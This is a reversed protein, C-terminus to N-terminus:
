SSINEENSEEYQDDVEKENIKEGEENENEQNGKEEEKNQKNKNEEKKEQIKNSGSVIDNIGDIINNIDQHENQKKVLNSYKYKMIELKDKLNKEEKKLLFNQKLKNRYDQNFKNIELDKNKLKHKELFTNEENEKIEKELESCEGKLEEAEMDMVGKELETVKDLFNQFKEEDNEYLNKIKEIEEESFISSIIKGEINTDIKPLSTTLEYKTINGNEIKNSLEKRKNLNIKINEIRESDFNMLYPHKNMDLFNQKNKLENYYKEDEKKQLTFKSQLYIYDKNKNHYEKNQTNLKNKVENLEEELKNIKNVCESNHKNMIEEYKKIQKELNKKNKEKQRLEVYLKNTSNLEYYHDISKKLKRNENSLINILKQKSKIDQDQQSFEKETLKENTTADNKKSDNNNTNTNINKNQVQSNDNKNKDMNLKIHEMKEKLIDLTQKIKHNSNTLLELRKEKETNKSILKNEENETSQEMNKIKLKFNELIDLYAKEKSSIEIDEKIVLNEDKEKSKTNKKKQKQKNGKETSKITDNNTLEQSKQTRTNEEKISM